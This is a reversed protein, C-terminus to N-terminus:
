IHAEQRYAQQRLGPARERKEFANAVALELEKRDFSKIYFYHVNQQRARRELEWSNEGTALIIEMTPDIMKLIAAADCGMMEPLSVAVLACGYRKRSVMRLAESFDGCADIASVTERLLKRVEARFREDPDIVLVRRGNMSLQTPSLNLM